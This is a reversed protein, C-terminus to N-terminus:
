FISTLFSSSFTGKFYVYRPHFFFFLHSFVLHKSFRHSFICAFLTYAFLICAFFICTFYFSAPFFFHSFFYFNSIFVSFNRFIKLLLALHSFFLIRFSYKTQFPHQVNFVYISFMTLFHSPLLFSAFLHFYSIIISSFHLYFFLHSFLNFRLNSFYTPCKDNFNQTPRM